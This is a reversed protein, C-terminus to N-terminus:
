KRDNYFAFYLKWQKGAKKFELDGVRAWNNVITYPGYQLTEIKTIEKIIELQNKQNRSDAQSILFAAFVEIFNSEHVKVVPDSDYLGRTKFPFITYTKLKNTDNDIVAQRFKKWFIDFEQVETDKSQPATEKQDYINQSLLVLLAIITIKM